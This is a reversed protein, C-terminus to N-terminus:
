DIFKIFDHAQWSLTEGSAFCEYLRPGNGSYGFILQLEHPVCIRSHANLIKALMTTGCRGTGIIFNM